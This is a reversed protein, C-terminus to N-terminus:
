RQQVFLAESDSCRCQNKKMDHHKSINRNKLSSLGEWFAEVEFEQSEPVEMLPYDQFEEALKDQEEPAQYPLLKPFREVFYAADNVECVARQQVDVFRAHKLLSEKLPLKAMAYEVAGTLFALVAQHFSEGQQPTVDGAELLQNLTTRTTFGVNLKQGSLQTSPDTYNIDEVARGQLASILLFRGCLKRIYNTMEEYLLFVSPKERQLLLNLSTFTPLTAQYFLLYVETMPDSFAGALRIFRKENASQFYSCLPKYQKLVRNLCRELSLWRISIRM